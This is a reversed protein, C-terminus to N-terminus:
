CADHSWQQTICSSSHFITANHFTKDANVKEVIGDFKAMHKEEQNTQGRSICLKKNTNM